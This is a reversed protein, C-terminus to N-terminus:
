FEITQGRNYIYYEGDTMEAITEILDFYEELSNVEKYGEKKFEEVLALDHRYKKIWAIEDAHIADDLADQTCSIYHESVIIEIKYTKM